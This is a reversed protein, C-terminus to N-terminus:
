PTYKKEIVEPGFVTGTPQLGLPNGARPASDPSPQVRSGPEPYDATDIVDPAVISSGNDTWTGGPGRKGNTVLEWAVTGLATYNREFDASYATVYNSFAENSTSTTWASGNNPNTAPFLWWPGDMSLVEDIKGANLNKYFAETSTRTFASGGGAGAPHRGSDLWPGQQAGSILDMDMSGTGYQVHYLFSTVNQLWGLTIRDVGLRGDAGGGVMKVFADFGVVGHSFFTKDIGTNPAGNPQVGPTGDPGPAGNHTTFGVNGLADSDGKINNPFKATAPIQNGQNDVPNSTVTCSVVAIQLIRLVEQGNDDFQGNHNRDVYAILNFSGVTLTSFTVSLPNTNSVDWVDDDNHFDGPLWTVADAGNRQLKWEVDNVNVTPDLGTLSVQVTGSHSVVVLMHSSEPFYTHTDVSPVTGDPIAAAGPSPNPTSALSAIIAMNSNPNGVAVVNVVFAATAFQGLSNTVTVVVNYLTASVDAALVTGVINAGSLALGAPLGSVSYTLADNLNDHANIPLSVVQNAQYTQGGPNAIYVYGVTWAFTQSASAGHGDSATVTVIYPTSSVANLGIIGSILGTSPNISLGTPLNSATYTLPVGDPGRADLHLSVTDQTANEQDGPNRLTLPRVSWLFTDSFSQGATNTATVAVQFPGDLDANASIVGSILGAGSITLGDPLDSASFTQAGPSNTTVIQLLVTDNDASNQDGPNVFGLGQITETVGSSTVSAYNADGVYVAKIIHDGISLTSTTWSAQGTNSGQSPPTLTTTGLFTSDVLFTVQGTPPSNAPGSVDAFFTVQQGAAAPNYNSSLSISTVVTQLVQQLLHPSTANNFYGTSNYVATIDHQGPTLTSTTFTAQPGPANPIPLALAVTALPSGADFFTVNGTPTGGAGEVTATFTVPQYLSSPQASSTLSVLTSEQYVNQVYISTTGGDYFSATISHQGLSLSSTILSAITSPAGNPAPTLTATGLVAAGDYFTATAPTSSSGTHTATFTVAQGFNAPNVNSTVSGTVTPQTTLSYPASTSGTSGADGSYVAMFSAHSFASQWTITFSARATFNAPSSSQLATTGLLQNGIGFAVNGTPVARAGTVDAFLTMQQGPFPAFSNSRLTTTTSQTTQPTTPPPMPPPQPIPPPMVIQQQGLPASTSGACVGDGFYVATVAPMPLGADWQLPLTTAAKAEFPQAPDAGVLTATGLLRETGSAPAQIFFEVTGTPAAGNGFVFAYLNIPQGNVPTQTDSLIDTATTRFQM